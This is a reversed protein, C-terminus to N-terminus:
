MICNTQKKYFVKNESFILEPEAIEWLCNRLFSLVVDCRAMWFLLCYYLEWCIRMMMMILMKMVIMTSSMTMMMMMIMMTMMTMIMMMIMIMKMVAMVFLFSIFKSAEFKFVVVVLLMTLSETAKDNALQVESVDWTNFGLRSWHERNNPLVSFWCHRQGGQHIWTNFSDILWVKHFALFNRAVAQCEILHSTVGVKSVKYPQRFTAFNSLFYKWEMFSMNENALFIKMRYIVYKLEIFKKM